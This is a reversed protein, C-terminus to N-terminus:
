PKQMIDLLSFRTFVRQYFETASLWADQNGSVPSGALLTVSNGDSAKGVLGIYTGDHLGDDPAFVDIFEESLADHLSHISRYSRINGEEHSINAVALVQVNFIEQQAIARCLTQVGGFGPDVIMLLPISEAQVIFALRELGSEASYLYYFHVAPQEQALIIPVTQGVWSQDAEPIQWPEPLTGPPVPEPETPPLISGSHNDENLFRSLGALNEWNAPPTPATPAESANTFTKTPKTALAPTDGDDSKIHQLGILLTTIMCICLMWLIAKKM